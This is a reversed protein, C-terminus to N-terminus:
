AAQPSGANRWAQPSNYIPYRKVLVAQLHKPNQGEVLPIVDASPPIAVDYLALTAFPMSIDNRYNYGQSLGETTAARDASLPGRLVKLEVVGCVQPGGTKAKQLLILDTRGAATPVQALVTISRLRGLFFLAIQGRLHREIEEEATQILKDKAWLKATHGSPNKLNDNYALDLVETVDSQTLEEHSLPVIYRVHNQDKSTGEPYITASRAAGDWIVTLRDDFGFAELKVMLPVAEGSQLPYCVGNNADRGTLVITKSLAGHGDQMHVIREFAHPRGDTAPAESYIFACLECAVPRTAVARVASIIFRAHDDLSPPMQDLDESAVAQLLAMKLSSDALKAAIPEAMRRGGCIDSM